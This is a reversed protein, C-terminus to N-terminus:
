CWGIDSVRKTQACYGALRGAAEEMCTVPSCPHKQCAAQACPSSLAQRTVSLSTCLAGSGPVLDRVKRVLCSSLPGSTGGRGGASTATTRGAVGGPASGARVGGELTTEKDVAKVQREQMLIGAQQHLGEQAGQAARELLQCVTKGLVLDIHRCGYKLEAGSLKGHLRDQRGYM